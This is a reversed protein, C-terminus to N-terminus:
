QKPRATVKRQPRNVAKGAPGQERAVGQAQPVTQPQVAPQAQQRNANPPMDVAAGTGSISTNAPMLGNPQQDSGPVADSPQGTETGTYNAMEANQRPNVSLTNITGGGSNEQAAAAITMAALLALITIGARLINKM